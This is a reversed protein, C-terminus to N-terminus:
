ILPAAGHNLLDPHQERRALFSATDNEPKAGWEM